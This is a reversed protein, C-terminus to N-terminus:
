ELWLHFIAEKKLPYFGMKEYFQCAPINEEQTSVHLAKILKKKCINISANILNSAIGRGRYLENVALLGIKAESEASKTILTVFGQIIDEGKEVLVHNAITKDLSKIIWTRYLQEFATRGIRPDVKFRSFEGSSIALRFLQEQLSDDISKLEEVRTEATSRAEVSMKYDINTSVLRGGHDKISALDSATIKEPHAYVYTLKVQLEKLENFTAEFNEKSYTCSAIRYGFFDSDWDLISIKENVTM